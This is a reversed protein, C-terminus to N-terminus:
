QRMEMHNKKCVFCTKFVRDFYEQIEPTIEIDNEFSEFLEDLADLGLFAVERGFNSPSSSGM